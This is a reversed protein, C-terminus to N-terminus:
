WIERKHAKDPRTYASKAASEMDHLWRAVVPMLLLAIATWTLWM